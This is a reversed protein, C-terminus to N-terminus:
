PSICCIGCFKLFTDYKASQRTDLRTDCNAGRAKSDDGSVKEIHYEFFENM